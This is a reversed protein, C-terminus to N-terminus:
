TGEKDEKDESATTSGPYWGSGAAEHAERLRKEYAESGIADDTGSISKWEGEDQASNATQSAADALGTVGGILSDGLGGAGQDVRRGSSDYAVGEERQGRWKKEPPSEQGKEIPTGIPWNSERSGTQTERAIDTASQALDGVPGLDRMRQRDAEARAADAAGTVGGVLDNVSGTLGKNQTDRAADGADKVGEVADMLGGFIGGSQGGERAEADDRDKNDDDKNTVRKMELYRWTPSISVYLL